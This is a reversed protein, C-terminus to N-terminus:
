DNRIIGVLGTDRLVATKKLEELVELAHETSLAYIYVSPSAEQTVFDVAFLRWNYGREVVTQHLVIAGDSM